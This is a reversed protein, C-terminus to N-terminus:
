KHPLIQSQTTLVVTQPTRRPRLLSAFLPRNRQKAKNPQVPLPFTGRRCTAHGVSRRGVCGDDGKCFYSGEPIWVTRRAVYSVTGRVCMMDELEAEALEEGEGGADGEEAVTRGVDVRSSDVM